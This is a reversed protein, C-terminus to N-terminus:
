RHNKVALTLIAESISKSNSLKNHPSLQEKFRVFEDCKMKDVKHIVYKLKGVNEESARVKEAM